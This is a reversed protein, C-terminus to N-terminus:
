QNPTFDSSAAYCGTCRLNCKQTPSLVAFGPPAVGHKDKFEKILKSARSEKMFGNKVLTGVNRKIVEPSIHGKDMNKVTCNLMARMFYYKELQGEHTFEENDEVIGKYMKQDLKKLLPGRLLKSKLITTILNSIIDEGIAM